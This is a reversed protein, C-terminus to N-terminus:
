FCQCWTLCIVWRVSAHVSQDPKDSCVLQSRQDSELGSPLSSLSKGEPVLPDELDRVVDEEITFLHANTGACRYLKHMRLHSGPIGGCHGQRNYRVTGRSQALRLPAFVYLLTLHSKM